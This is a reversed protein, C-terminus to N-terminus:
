RSTAARTGRVKGRPVCSQMLDKVQKYLESEGEVPVDPEATDDRGGSMGPIATYQWYRKFTHESMVKRVPFSPAATSPLHEPWRWHWEMNPLPHAAMHVLVGLYRLFTGKTWSVVNRSGSAAYASQVQPLKSTFHSVPFFRNFLGFVVDEHPDLGRRLGCRRQVLGQVDRPDTEVSCPEWDAEVDRKQPAGTRQREEADSGVSSVDDEDEWESM